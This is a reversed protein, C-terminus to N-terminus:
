RNRKSRSMLRLIGPFIALCNTLVVAHASDLQPLALFALVALGAVHLTELIAVFIFEKLPPRQYSKLLVIRLSRWLTGVIEPVAFAFILAWVWAIQDTEFQDM